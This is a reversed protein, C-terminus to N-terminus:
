RRNLCSSAAQREGATQARAEAESSVAVGAAARGPLWLHSPLGVTLAWICAPSWAWEAHEWLWCARRAFHCPRSPLFTHESGDLKMVLTRVCVRFFWFDRRGGALFLQPKLFLRRELDPLIRFFQVGTQSGLRSRPGAKGGM